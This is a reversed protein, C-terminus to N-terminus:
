GPPPAPEGCTKAAARFRPSSTDIGGAPSPAPFPYAVLGDVVRPDPWDPYGHARMCRTAKLAQLLQHHLQAAAPPHGQPLLHQCANMAAQTRPLAPNAGRVALGNLILVTTGPDPSSPARSVYVDPEGHARLCQAYSSVAAALDPAQGADPGAQHAGGCGAALVAIGAAAAALGGLGRPRWRRGPVRGHTGNM